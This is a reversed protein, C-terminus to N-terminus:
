YARHIVSEETQSHGCFYVEREDFGFVGPLPSRTVALPCRGIAAPPRARAALLRHATDSVKQKNQM